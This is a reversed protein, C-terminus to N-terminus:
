ADPTRALVFRLTEPEDAAGAPTFGCRVLVNISRANSEGCRAVVRAIMPRSFAHAVLARVLETAYGNGQFEPVVSYGVEM